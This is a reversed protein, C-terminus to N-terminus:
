NPCSQIDVSGPKIVAFITQVYYSSMRLTLYDQTESIYPNRYSYHRTLRIISIFGLSIKYLYQTADQFEKSNRYEDHRVKAEDIEIQQKKLHNEIESM